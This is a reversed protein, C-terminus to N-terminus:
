RHTLSLFIWVDNLYRRKRERGGKNSTFKEVVSLRENLQLDDHVQRDMSISWEWGGIGHDDSQPGQNALKPSDIRLDTQQYQALRPRLRM